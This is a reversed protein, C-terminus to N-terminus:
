GSSNRACVLTIQSCQRIQSSQWLSSTGPASACSYRSLDAKWYLKLLACALGPTPPAPASPPRHCVPLTACPLIAKIIPSNVLNRGQCLRGLLEVMRSFYIATEEDTRKLWTALPLEKEHQFRPFYKPDGTVAVQAGPRHKLQILLEPADKILLRCIRWQNVRVPKGRSLCLRILFNLFREQRGNEKRILALFSEVMGDDISDLLQDNDTFVETLVQAVRINFALMSQLQSVFRAAYLRNANNQRLLHWKFRMFLKSLRHLAQHKGAIDETTFFACDLPATVCRLSIDLLGQERMLMQRPKHPLGERTMADLNPTDTSVFIILDSVLRSIAKFSVDGAKAATRLRGLYTLLRRKVMCVYLLDCFAKHVVPECAFVDENHKYLSAVMTNTGLGDHDDDKSDILHLFRGTAVHRLFFYKEVGVISDKAEYQPELSFLTQTLTLSSPDSLKLALNVQQVKSPHVSGRRGSRSIISSLSNVVSISKVADNLSLRRERPTGAPTSPPTAMPTPSPAEVSSPKSLELRSRSDASAEPGTSAQEDALSPMAGSAQLSGTLSPPPEDDEEEVIALVRGTSAQVLRFTSDWGFANGGGNLVPTDTLKDVREFLFVTGSANGQDSSASGVKIVVGSDAALETASESRYVPDEANSMPGDTEKHHLRFPEGGLLCRVQQDAFSRFLMVRFATAGTTGRVAIVDKRPAHLETPTHTLRGDYVTLSFGSQMSEFVVPDAVHVREGESHVRLRPLIRFWGSEGANADVAVKCGDGSQARTRSVCVHRGSLFHQLEVVMGYRVDGGKKQAFELENLRAENDATLM